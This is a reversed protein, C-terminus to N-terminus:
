NVAFANVILSPLTLVFVASLFEFLLCFTVEEEVGDCIEEYFLKQYPFLVSSRMTSKQRKRKMFNGEDKVCGDSVLLM